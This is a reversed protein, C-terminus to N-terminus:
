TATEKELNCARDIADEITDFHEVTVDWKSPKSTQGAIERDHEDLVLIEGLTFVALRWNLAVLAGGPHIEGIPVLNALPDHSDAVYIAGIATAMNGIEHAPPVRTVVAFTTQTM